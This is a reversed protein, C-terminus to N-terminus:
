GHQVARSQVDSKPRVVLVPCHAFRVVREAVSGAMWAKFGTRGHTGMAILDIGHSDAYKVIELAPNGCIVQRVVRKPGLSEAPLKKLAQEAEDKWAALISEHLPGFETATKTAPTVSHLVHILHLEADFRRGLDCAQRLAENSYESFDIPILIKSYTSM